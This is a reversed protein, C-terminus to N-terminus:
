CYLITSHIVPYTKRKKKRSLKQIKKKDSFSICFNFILSFSFFKWQTKSKYFVCYPIINDFLYIM